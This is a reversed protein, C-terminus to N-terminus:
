STWLNDGQEKYLENDRRLLAIQDQLVDNNRGSCSLSDAMADRNRAAEERFIDLQSRLAANDDRIHKLTKEYTAKESVYEERVHELEVELKLAKDRYHAADGKVVNAQTAIEEQQRRLAERELALCKASDQQRAEWDEYQSEFERRDEDLKRRVRSSEESKLDVSKDYDAMQRRHNELHIWEAQIKDERDVVDRFREELERKDREVKTQMREMEERAKHFSTADAFAKSDWTSPADAVGVSGSIGATPSANTVAAAGSARFGSNTPTDPELEEESERLTEQDGVTSSRGSTTNGSGTSKKKKVDIM